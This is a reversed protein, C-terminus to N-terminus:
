GGTKVTLTEPFRKIDGGKEIDIVVLNSIKGTIIGVNAEPYKTFWAKVEEETAFRNQYELWKVLPIKDLGVPIISHKTKLLRLAIELNGRPPTLPPLKKVLFNTMQILILILIIILILIHYTIWVMDM